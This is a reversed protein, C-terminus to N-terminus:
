GLVGCDFGVANMVDAMSGEKKNKALYYSFPSGQLFDGNDIKLLPGQNLTEIDKIKSAIKTLGFDLSQNKERFDTAYLYGHTDSTSLITLKM